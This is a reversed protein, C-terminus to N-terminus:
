FHYVLGVGFLSQTRNEVIPSNADDGELDKVSAFARLMFHESYRYILSAHVGVDRVGGAPTYEPLGSAFSQSESVGFWTQNYRANAFEMDPGFLLLLRREMLVLRYDLQVLGLLGNDTQTVAQRVTTALELPGIHYSAFVGATLSAHIDGLGNLRADRDEDRGGLYGLVPGARFHGTDILNVRLGSSGIFICHRYVIEAMPVLRTRGSDAGPYNPAAAIGAGLNVNWAGPAPQEGLGKQELVQEQLAQAVAPRQYCVLMSALLALGYGVPRGFLQKLRERWTSARACDRIMTLWQHFIILIPNLSGVPHVLGYTIPTQPREAAFTGFLRDWIILIGGYNRDLYEGNSAHHVRHHAPTNFVWELPGFRGVLDTHLWFQYALNIAQMASVAVPNFGLLYLPFYFLWTGSFVETPGLRFASALHIHEPTHHVAHSAWMWRIEHSARHMWYYAFEVGLFLLLLTWVSDLSLTILRHSWALYVLPSVLLPRLLRFPIRLIYVAVSSSMESWPYPRRQVFRYWIVEFAVAAPIVLYLFLERLHRQGLLHHHFSM